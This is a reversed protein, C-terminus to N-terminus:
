TVKFDCPSLHCVCAARETTTSQKNSITIKSMECRDASCTVQLHITITVKISPRVFTVNVLGIRADPQKMKSQNKVGGDREFEKEFLRFYLTRVCRCGVICGEAAM